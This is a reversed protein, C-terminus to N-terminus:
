GFRRTTSRRRPKTCITPARYARDLRDRLDRRQYLIFIVFVIVIEWQRAAAASTRGGHKASDRRPRNGRACEGVARPGVDSVSQAAKQAAPISVASKNLNNDLGHLADPRKRSLARPSPGLKKCPYCNRPSSSKTNPCTKALLQAVQKGLVPAQYCFPNRLGARCCAARICGQRNSPPRVSRDYASFRFKPTGIAMAPGLNRKPGRSRPAVDGALRCPRM